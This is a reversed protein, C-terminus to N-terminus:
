ATQTERACLELRSELLRLRRDSLRAGLRLRADRRALALHGLLLHLEFLRHAAGLLLARAGLPLRPLPVLVLELRRDGLGDLRDLILPRGLHRSEGLIPFRLAPLRRTM